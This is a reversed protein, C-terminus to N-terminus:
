SHSEINRRRRNINFESPGFIGGCHKISDELADYALEMEFIVNANASGAPLEEMERKADNMHSIASDIFARLDM